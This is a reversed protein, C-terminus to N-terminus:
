FTWNILDIGVLTVTKDNQKCFGVIKEIIQIKGGKGIM